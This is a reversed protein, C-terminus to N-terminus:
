LSSPLLKLVSFHFYPRNILPLAYASLVNPDTSTHKSDPLTQVQEGLSRFYSHKLADEASVRKKADFQLCASLLTLTEHLSIERLNKDAIFM